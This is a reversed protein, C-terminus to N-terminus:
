FETFFHEEIEKLKDKMRKNETKLEELEKKLFENELEVQFRLKQEQENYNRM